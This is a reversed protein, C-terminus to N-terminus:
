KAKIVIDFFNAVDFELELFEKQCRISNWTKTLPHIFGKWKRTISTNTVTATAADSRKCEIVAQFKKANEESGCYWIFIACRENGQAHANGGGKQSGEGSPQRELNSMRAVFFLESIKDNARDIANACVEDGPATSTRRNSLISEEGGEEGRENTSMLVQNPASLIKSDSRECSYKTSHQTSPDLISTVEEPAEGPILSICSISKNMLQVEIPEGYTGYHQTVSLQHVRRLHTLVDWQSCLLQFKHGESSTPNVCSKGTPCHYSKNLTTSTAVPAPSEKGNETVEPGVKITVIQKSKRKIYKIAAFPRAITIGKQEKCSTDTTKPTASLFSIIRM